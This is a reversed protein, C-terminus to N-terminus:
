LILLTLINILFNETQFNFDVLKPNIKINLHM